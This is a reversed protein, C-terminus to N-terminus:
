GTVTFDTAEFDRMLKKAEATTDAITIERVALTHARELAEHAKDYGDQDRPKDPNTWILFDSLARWSPRNLEDRWSGDDNLYNKSFTYRKGVIMEVFEKPTRPSAVAAMNFHEWLKSQHTYYVRLTANLIASTKREDATVGADFEDYMKTEKPCKPAEQPVAMRSQTATTVMQFNGLSNLDEIRMRM